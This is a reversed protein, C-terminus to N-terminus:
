GFGEGVGKIYLLCFAEQAKGYLKEYNELRDLYTNLENNTLTTSKSLDELKFTFQSNNPNLTHLFLADSVSHFDLIIAYLQFGSKLSKTEEALFQFHRFLKDLHSKRRKFSNNGYGWNDFHLHWNETWTNTDKLNLCTIKDFDNQHELNRYYRKIGRHKKM